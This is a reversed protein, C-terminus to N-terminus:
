KTFAACRERRLTMLKNSTLSVNHIEVIKITIIMFSGELKAIQKRM